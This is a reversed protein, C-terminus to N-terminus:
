RPAAKQLESDLARWAAQFPELGMSDALTVIAEAQGASFLVKGEPEQGGWVHQMVERIPETGLPVLIPTLAKIEAPGAGGPRKTAAALSRLQETLSPTVPKEATTGALWEPETEAETFSGETPEDDDPAEPLEYDAGASLAKAPEPGYLAAVNGSFAQLMAARVDPHNTNPVFSVVAFPRRIEEDTYSSKLSLIARIARSRARTSVHEYFFSLFKAKEADSAFRKRALDIEKTGTATIRQGNPLTMAAMVTVRILNPNTGDDVRREDLFSVGAASAFKNLARAGPARHGAKIDNSKYTDDEYDLVVVQVIPKLLDTTIVTQTPVLRNFKDEPFGDLSFRSAPSTAIAGGQPTTALGKEETM